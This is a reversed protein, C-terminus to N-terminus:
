VRTSRSSLEKFLRNVIRDSIRRKGFCKHPVLGGSFTKPVHLLEHILVKTQEEGSLRDFKEELVEIVYHPDIGLSIQWVRPMEYIRAIANSKSGRSRVCRVRSVDIHKMDLKLVIDLIRLQIDPAKEFDM